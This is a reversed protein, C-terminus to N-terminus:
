PAPAGKSLFVAGPHRPVGHFLGPEQAETNHLFDYAFETFEYAHKGPIPLIRVGLPKRLVASVGAVDMMIAALEEEFIDGPVPVMDVGCGCVTSYALLSDISFEKANNNIGLRTDELLSYMVGNFGM